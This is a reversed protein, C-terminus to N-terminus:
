EETKLTSIINIKRYDSIKIDFIEASYYSITVRKDKITRFEKPMDLNSEIKSIWYFKNLIKNDGVLYFVVSNEEDIKTIIGNIMQEGSDAADINEQDLSSDEKLWYNMLIESCNPLMLEAMQLGFSEMKEENGMDKKLDIGYDKKIEQSYPVSTKLICLGVELQTQKQSKNEKKLNSICECTEKSLKDKYGQSFLTFSCFLALIFHLKYYM